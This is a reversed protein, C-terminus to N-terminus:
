SIPIPATRIGEAPTPTVIPLVKESEKLRDGHFTQIFIRDRALGRMEDGHNDVTADRMTDRKNVGLM